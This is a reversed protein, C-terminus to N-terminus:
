FLGLFKKRKIPFPEQRNVNLGGILLQSNETFMYFTDFGFDKKVKEFADQMCFNRNTTNHVDSAIFHALNADIIQETFKQASKGFNGLVSGATIQTLSGNRVFNYLLGPREQLEKNREPHVIIPIYGAVQLDFFLQKAYRPVSTPSFEVFVYHTNNISQLEGNQLDEVMEGNIRTEQGPLVTLPIGREKLLESYIAVNKQITERSNTYRGNKHHPTAVITQIGEKVAAQAIALSEAETQAGDDIGPLIHSHIDIM